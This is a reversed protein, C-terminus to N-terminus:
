QFLSFVNELTSEAERGAVRAIGRSGAAGVKRQLPACGEAVPMYVLVLESLNFIRM